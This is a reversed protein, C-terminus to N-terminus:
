DHLRGRQAWVKPDPRQILGESLLLFTRLGLSARSSFAATDPETTPADRGASCGPRCRLPILCAFRASLPGVLYRLILVYDRLLERMDRIKAM